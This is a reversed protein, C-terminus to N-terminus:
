ETAQLRQERRVALMQLIAAATEEISRRTVDITAWKRRAYLRRAEQIERQVNDMDTYDSETSQQLLRLRNVRIQVLREPDTILGVILPRKAAELASPPDVLPVLPVNAARVGRNALYVCTPTKSTRSPGVLIVDADELDHTSQGDDHALTYHMADIRDFYGEDLQHQRGPWQESKSHFHVALVSMAQDLVGVCPLQLRRCHDRVLDRLEPDVLTYLVPGRDREVAQMVKDMQGKTRVLSWVHEQVFVGEYQVLCARAVSSVTEGTSDSVLHVHFNRNAVTKEVGCRGPSFHLIARPFVPIPPVVPGVPGIRCVVRGAAASERGKRVSQSSHGAFRSDLPSLEDFRGQGIWLRRPVGSWYPADGHAV